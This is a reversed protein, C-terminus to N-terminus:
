RVLLENGELPNLMGYKLRKFKMNVFFSYRTFRATTHIEVADVNGSDFLHSVAEPDRM